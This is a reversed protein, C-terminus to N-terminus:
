IGTNGCEYLFLKNQNYGIYRDFYENKTIKGVYFIQIDELNFLYESLMYEFTDQMKFYKSVDKYDKQIINLFDDKPVEEFKEFYKWLYNDLIWGRFCNNLSWEEFPYEKDEYIHNGNFCKCDYEQYLILNFFLEEFSFIDDNCFIRDISLFDDYYGQGFDSSFTDYDFDGLKFNYTRKIFEEQNELLAVIPSKM